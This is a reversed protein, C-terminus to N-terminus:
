EGVQEVAVILHCFYIQREVRKSDQTLNSAAHFVYSINGLTVRTRHITGRAALLIDVAEDYSNVSFASLLLSFRATPQLPDSTGPTLRQVTVLPYIPQPLASIHGGNVRGGTKAGVVPDALLHDILYHMLPDAM